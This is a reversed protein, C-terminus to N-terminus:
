PNRLDSIAQEMMDYTLTGMFGSVFNGNQDIFYSTPIGNVRYLSGIDRKEDLLIQFTLGYDEAFGQATNKADGLNVALIVLEDKYKQHIREMDPMEEKCPGCWSAWFNLFVYKGNYDSLRVTNGDLDTLTFDPAPILEEPEEVDNKDNDPLDNENGVDESESDNNSLDTNEDQNMLAYGIAIAMIVLLIIIIYTTRNKKM